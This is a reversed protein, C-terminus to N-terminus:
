IGPEIWLTIQAWTEADIVPQKKLREFHRYMLYECQGTEAKKQDIEWIPVGSLSGITLGVIGAAIRMGLVLRLLNPFLTGVVVVAGVVLLGIELKRFFAIQEKQM